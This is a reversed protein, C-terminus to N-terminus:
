RSAPRFFPLTIEDNQKEFVVELPMDLILAEPTQPLDRVNSMMRPGEALEVVAIAIPGDSIDAIPRHDIVYSHLTAQGSAQFVAVNRSICNPCFPQPPFYVDGCDKCRQLRLEGNQCGEWFHRTEPTPVPLPRPV